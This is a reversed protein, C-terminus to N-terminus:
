WVVHTAGENMLTFETKLTERIAGLVAPDSIPVDELEQRLDATDLRKRGGGTREEYLIDIENGHGAILTVVTSAVDGLVPRDVHCWKFVATVTTGIGAQSEITLYGGTQEATQALLPIGLGTKKQKTTYFPDRIRALAESDMGRGNDRVELTLQDHGEERTLIIEIRKADARIANEAIDLIHLSLDEV